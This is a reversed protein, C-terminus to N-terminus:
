SECIIINGLHLVNEGHANCENLDFSNQDNEIKELISKLIEYCGYKAAVLLSGEQIQKLNKINEEFTDLDKIELIEVPIEDSKDTNLTEALICM